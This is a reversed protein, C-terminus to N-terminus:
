IYIPSNEENTAENGTMAAENRRKMYLAYFDVPDIMLPQFGGDRTADAVIRRAFPFILNPCHVLLIFEKQDEPINILTVVSAYTLEILFLNQEETRATVNIKLAIEFSEQNIAQVEVDLNLDIHPQAKINFLSLPANPNEFSFDKIYQINSRIQPLQEAAQDLNQENM